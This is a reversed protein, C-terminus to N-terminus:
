RMIVLKGFGKKFLYDTNNQTDDTFREYDTGDIKKTIVQYLYTGNGLREGFEDTGDWKYDTRNMGIRLSGLEAATIERVVKGSLTMIRILINGPEESGTLTFIFQTSTSFPNPYNFVNSVMEENFVRFKVEYSIDGSINGTADSSQVSLTYRGDITLEPEYEIVAKNDDGSEAAIFNIAPDDVLLQKMEGNPDTIAIVFTSPDDLLLFPNSDDLSMRIVPESSVIDENMIQVGDFTVDLLPNVTDPKVEFEVLAFNNFYYREKPNQNKNLDIQLVYDGRLGRTDLEFRQVSAEGVKLAPVDKSYTVQNNQSDSITYILDTPLADRESLNQVEMQLHLQDGEDLVSKHFSFDTDSSLSLDHMGEYYVRLMQLQPATQQPDNSHFLLRIKPYSEVSISSLDINFNETSDVLLVESGNDMIGMVQVTVTDNEMPTAAWVVEDWATAPGIPATSITGENWLSQIQFISSIEANIDDTLVESIARFGTASSNQYVYIYPMPGLVQLQDLQKAGREELVEFLTTGLEAKDSAWEEINYRNQMNIQVFNVAVVFNEPLSDRLVSILHAREERTETPFQIYTTREANGHTSGWLPNSKFSRVPDGLIPDFLTLSVGSDIAKKDLWKNWIQSNIRYEVQINGNSPIANDMKIEKINNVYKLSRTSDVYELNRFDDQLFQFYHNQNWGSRQDPEYVFSSERWAIEGAVTATSGIRWYYVVDEIFDSGMEWVVTSRIDEFVRERMLPSDFSTTTDIQVKFDQKPGVANYTHAILSVDPVNVIAFESPYAPIASNSLVFFEHGEVGNQDRLINNLEATPSPEEDIENKSDVEILIRNRGVLNTSLIPISLCHNSGYSPAVIRFTTEYEIKGEPNQHKVSVEMSDLETRGINAIDFCVEFSEEYTDILTPNTAVTSRVPVLDATRFNPLVLAPDGHFTLQQLFTEYADSSINKFLQMTTLVAEGLPKGYSDGGAEAYLKRGFQDQVGLFATGAAALFVIAGKDKELVFSESIANGASNETHINGSYCGLSMLVPYKGKNEYNAVNDLNFDFSSPSAHGFFTIWSLGNNILRFIQDSTAEVIVDTSTKRFSSVNAGIKNTEVSDRMAELYSFIQEQQAGADGGALHLYQKQWWRGEVTSPNTSAIDHAKVKDLYNRIDEPSSAALRGIPKEPVSAGNRALILNDSGPFGFTPVFFNDAEAVDEDRRIEAYERAKGLVFMMDLQDYNKMAWFGYNRLGLVHRDIGYGYQDYIQQVDVVIVNYGGGIESSRYARYDEVYDAGVRLAEATVIIYNSEPVDYSVFDVKQIRKTAQILSPAIFLLEQTSPSPPILVGIKGGDILSTTSKTGSTLNYMLPAATGDYGEIEIYRTFSAPALSFQIEDQNDFRFLRQYKAKALAIRNRDQNSLTSTISVEINGDSISSAAVDFREIRTTDGTSNVTRVPVSNIAFSTRHGTYNGAYRVELEVTNSASALYQIPINISNVDSTSSGYGESPIFSSYRIEGSLKKAKNHASTLVVLEEHLYSGEPQLTNGTLDVTSTGYILPNSEETFTAFYASEDNILSYEPNFMLVGDEYLHRDLESRHRRGYFEIYSDNPGISFGIEKGFNHIHLRDFSTTNAPLGAEVLEAKTVRYVGDADITIKAYTKDYDIWENGYLTQGDIEMQASLTSLSIIALIALLFYRM